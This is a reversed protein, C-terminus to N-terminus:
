RVLSLSHFYAWLLFKCLIKEVKGKIWTSTLDNCEKGEPVKKPSTQGLSQWFSLFYAGFLLDSPCFFSCVSLDSCLAQLTPDYCKVFFNQFSYSDMKGVLKQEGVCGLCLMGEQCSNFCSSNM